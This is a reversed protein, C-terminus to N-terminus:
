GDVSAPMVAQSPIARYVKGFVKASLGSKLMDVATLGRILAPRRLVRGLWSALRISRGFLREWQVAYAAQIQATAQQGRSASLVDAALVAGAMAMTIGQGTLPEITGFADGIYLVGPMRPSARQTSVDSMSWWRSQAASQNFLRTLGPHDHAWASIVDDLRGRHEVLLRRRVVGCFNVDGGEVDCVGIYGGPLSHMRLVHEDATESSPLPQFHRKFGVLEPGRRAVDGTQRVIVSQRGDAAILIRSSFVQGQSAQDSPGATVGQVEGRDILVERARYGLEVHAGARRACDLLMADLRYRSLTVPQVSAADDLPVNLSREGPLVLSVARVPLAEQRVADSMDIADLPAWIGSGLYEGCVKQRPFHAADLLAIRWGQGALRAALTSGAPGAGVIVADWNDSM